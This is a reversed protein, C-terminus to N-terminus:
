QVEMFIKAVEEETIARSGYIRLNDIQMDFGNMSRFLSSGGLHLKVAESGRSGQMKISDVLIGDIYLQATISRGEEKVTVAIFHWDYDLDPHTFRGYDADMLCLKGNEVYLMPENASGYSNIGNACSLLLGNSWCKIWFTFSYYYLPISFMTM